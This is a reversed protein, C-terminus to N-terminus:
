SIRSSHGIVAASQGETVYVDDGDIVEEIMKYGLLYNTLTSKGAGTNGIILV